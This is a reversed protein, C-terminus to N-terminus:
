KGSRRRRNLFNRLVNSVLTSVNNSYGNYSLAGAFCVSGVSFVAGGERRELLTIDSRVQGCTSGGLGSRSALVDEGVLQYFDSHGTSRALVLTEEPSGKSIDFRDIEDGAAGDMILGFDGILEDDTLGEFAFAAADTFSDPMRRYGSAKHDWGQATMGIGVLANPPRGRHRWLGGPEGTTSHTLEGAAMEWPRTGSHGRRVEILHPRGNAQSTVWYFGNGGLYMLSGGAYLHEGLSTLMGESCYEPHSGTLVVDYGALLEAGSEALDHDTLVDFGFELQELWDVLYLDAALHRPANQLWSRYGPRLNPIPRLHSSYCCGYGDSHLDYLSLGWEPHEALETDYSGGQVPHDTLQDGQFDLHHLMRENAYAIYTFTPLLLVARERTAGAAPTVAFPIYDVEDVTTIRAAYVGSRLYGPLAITADVQWGADELSDDHFQIAGYQEPARVADLVRGTWKHGTTARTPSNVFVGANGMPGIDVCRDGFMEQEFRWDAFVSPTGAPGLCQTLVPNEIKGNFCGAPRWQGNVSACTVAGVVIETAIADACSGFAVATGDGPIGDLQRYRLTVSSDAGVQADVRYWVKARWSVALACIPDGDSGGLLALKGDKTIVLSFMPGTSGGVLSLIGQEHGAQSRTPQILVSVSLGHLAIQDIDAAVMCAGPFVDQVRGDVTQPLVELVEAVKVGPGAPNNDGHILRVVDVVAQSASTSIMCALSGGAPVSLKNLYGLVGM